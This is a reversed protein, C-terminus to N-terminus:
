NFITVSLMYLSQLYQGLVIFAYLYVHMAFTVSLSIKLVDPAMNSLFYFPYLLGCIVHCNQTLLLAMLGRMDMIQLHFLPLKLYCEQIRQTWVLVFVLGQSGYIRRRVSVVNTWAIAQRMDMFLYKMFCWQSIALQVGNFSIWDFTFLSIVCLM